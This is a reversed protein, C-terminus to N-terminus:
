RGIDASQEDSIVEPLSFTFVAGHPQADGVSISGGHATIISKCLALGLGLGRRSDGTKAETYFIDFIRSKSEDAIGPGNDAVSILVCGEGREACVRIESGEPTYKVANNVLNIIVQEILRADMYAMLYDDDISTKITHKASNRDIHTLADDIVEVVLEPELGTLKDKGEIRTISLLNEVLRILWESDDRISRLLEMRKEESMDSVMLLSASGSIGTLPTRLDHSISRLLNARLEQARAKEEMERKALKYRENELMIGCEDLIAVTLSKSYSEREPQGNVAFCVVASVTDSSRIAMYLGKAESCRGTGCGTGHGSRLAEQAAALEVPALYSEFGEGDANPFMMPQGLVGDKAPFIMISKGSLKGLQTAAFSLIQEESEAKQIRQSTELLIETRYSHQAKLRAQRKIQTTLSSIFIAAIFMIVFTAMESPDASLSCLPVTFLFNFVFASIIAASLSYFHGATSMAICLVALIYLTIVNASSFGMETFLLGGLTAATLLGLTKLVDALSFQEESFSLRRAKESPTTKDPIIFIDIDPALENLRDILTKKRFLSTHTPSKGLVIKTSGSVRAYEAIQTAADEGYLRTVKAGFRHALRFNAELRTKVEQGYEAFDPPEVYLATLKGGYAEAMKAAAKIVKANSPAGSLCVLIQEM